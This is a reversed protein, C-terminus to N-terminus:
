TNHDIEAEFYDHARKRREARVENEEIPLIYKHTIM